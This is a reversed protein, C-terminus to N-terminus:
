LINESDAPIRGQRRGSFSLPRCSDLAGALLLWKEESIGCLRQIASRGVRAEM